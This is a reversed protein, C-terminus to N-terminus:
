HNPLLFNLQLDNIYYYRHHKIKEKELKRRQWARISNVMDHFLKEDREEDVSEDSSIHQEFFALEMESNEDDKDIAEGLNDSEPNATM